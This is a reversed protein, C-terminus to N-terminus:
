AAFDVTSAFRNGPELALAKLVAEAAAQPITPILESLDPPPSSFRKAIIGQASNGSFPPAGALMEHITCALSYQDSKGDLQTEGSAQEPSLYAPTGIAVGTRTMSDGGAASIAKAIGFDLILPEGECLIINEPKIDRHVVGHRHAFDLAAALPRVLRLIESMPLQRERDLRGRLTEGEIQPMVYFLSGNSEGSDHVPVIHPHTLSAATKIEQLFRQPGLSAAVDRNLVKVAVGREHRHDRAQYVTAMGGRGIERELTYNGVLTPLVSNQSTM